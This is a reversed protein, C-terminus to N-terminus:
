DRWVKVKAKINQATCLIRNVGGSLLGMYSM